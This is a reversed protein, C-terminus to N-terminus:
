NLEHVTSELRRARNKAFTEQLSARVNTLHVLRLFEQEQEEIMRDNIMEVMRNHFKNPLNSCGYYVGNSIHIDKERPSNTECTPTRPRGVWDTSFRSLHIPTEKIKESAIRLVQANGMQVFGKANMKCASEKGNNNLGSAHQEKEKEAEAVQHSEDMWMRKAHVNYADKFHIANTTKRFPKFDYITLACRGLCELWEHFSLRLPDKESRHLGFKSQKFCRVLKPKSMLSPIIEFDHAFQMFGELHMHTQAHQIDAWTVEGGHSVLSEQECYYNFVPLLKERIPGTIVNSVEAETLADRLPDEDVHMTELIPDVHSAILQSFSEEIPVHPIAKSAIAGILQFFSAITLKYNDDCATLRAESTMKDFLLQLEVLDHTDTILLADKAFRIFQFRSMFQLNTTDGHCCYRQFVKHLKRKQENTPHVIMKGEFIKQSYVPSKATPPHAICANSM